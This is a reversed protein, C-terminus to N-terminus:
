LFFMHCLWPFLRHKSRRRKHPTIFAVDAVAADFCHEWSFGVLIAIAQSYFITPGLDDTTQQSYCKKSSTPPKLGESFYSDIPIIFNGISPFIIWIAVLGGVLCKNSGHPEYYIEYLDHGVVMPNPHLNGELFSNKCHSSSILVTSLVM